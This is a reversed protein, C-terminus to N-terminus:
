ESKESKQTKNSPGHESFGTTGPESTVEADPPLALFNKALRHYLGEHSL